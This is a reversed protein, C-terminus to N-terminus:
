PPPPPPPPPPRALSRGRDGHAPHARGGRSPPRKDLAAALAQARGPRSPKGAACTPAASGRRRLGGGRPARRPVPRSLSGGGAAGAPSQRAGHPDHSGRGLRRPEAGRVAGG